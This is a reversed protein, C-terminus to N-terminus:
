HCHYTNNSRRRHCGDSNTGGSHALAVPAILIAISLTIGAIPYLKKIPTRVIIM